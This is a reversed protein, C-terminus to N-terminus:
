EHCKPCVLSTTLLCSGGSVCCRCALSDCTQWMTPSSVTYNISSIAQKAGMIFTLRLVPDLHCLLDWFQTISAGASTSLLCVSNLHCKINGCIVKINPTSTHCIAHSALQGLIRVPHNFITLVVISCPRLLHTETVYRTLAIREAQKTCM